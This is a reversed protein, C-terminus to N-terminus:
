QRANGVKDFFSILVHDFCLSASGKELEGFELFRNNRGPLVYTLLIRALRRLPGVSLDAVNSFFSCTKAQGGVSSVCVM